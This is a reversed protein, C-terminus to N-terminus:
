SAATFRTTVDPADSWLRELAYFGRTEQDFIHAVFDGFDLLVWKAQSLGESHLPRVGRQRLVTLVADSIAEAQRENAASAVLFFDTFDTVAGLHLVQIDLAKKDLAAAVAAGVHAAIDPDMEAKGAPATTSPEAADDLM